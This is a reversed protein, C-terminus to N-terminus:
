EQGIENSSIVFVHRISATKDGVHGKKAREGLQVSNLVKSSSSVVYRDRKIPGAYKSSRSGNGRMEADAVGFVRRILATKAVM